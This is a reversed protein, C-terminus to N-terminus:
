DTFHRVRLEVGIADAKRRCEAIDEEPLVDVVSLKVSPISDRCLSAFELMKEYADPYKPRTVKMYGEADPANMSISVADVAGALEPVINRGHYLNGLGNTNVRITLGYTDKAYKATALLIDLACTPEGYGCYVLETYGTFDFQKMAELVEELTPNTKHWLNEAEGIADEQNRICFTCRCNCENTLNVYVQNKYTYLIDAM